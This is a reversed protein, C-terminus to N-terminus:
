CVGNGSLISNYDSFLCMIGHLCILYTYVYLLTLVDAISSNTPSKFSSSFKNDTPKATKVTFNQQGPAENNLRHYFTMIDMM